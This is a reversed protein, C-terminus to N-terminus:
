EPPPICPNYGTKGSNGRRSSVNVSATCRCFSIYKDCIKEFIAWPDTGMMPFYRSAENQLIGDVVALGSKHM